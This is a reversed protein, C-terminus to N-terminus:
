GLTQEIWGDINMDGSVHVKYYWGPPILGVITTPVGGASTEEAVPLTPPSTAGTLFIMDGQYGNSSNGRIAVRLPKGTTNQYIEGMARSASVDQPDGVTFPRSIKVIEAVV